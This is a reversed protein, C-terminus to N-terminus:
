SDIAPPSHYISQMTQALAASNLEALGRSLEGSLIESVGGPCRTSAVPTNLLLAEVIVNGFGESDSSLTLMRAHKIWPLPTPQFGKFLV